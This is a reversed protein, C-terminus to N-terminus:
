LISPCVLVRRRPEHLNKLRWLLTEIAVEAIEEFRMDMCFVNEGVAAFQQKEVQCYLWTSALCFTNDLRYMSQYLGPLSNTVFIGMPANSVQLIKKSLVEVPLDECIEFVECGLRVATERFTRARTACGGHGSLFPNVVVLRQHGNKILYHAAMEGARANDPMVNDANEPLIGSRQEFLWLAPINLKLKRAIKEGLSGPRVVIADTKIRELVSPSDGEISFQGLVINLGKQEAIQTFGHVLRATLPTEERTENYPFVIAINGTTIGDDTKRPRGCRGSEPLKYGVKEVVSMVKESTESAVNGEGSLVRSVTSKSVGALKAVRDITM